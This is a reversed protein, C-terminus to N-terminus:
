KTQLENNDTVTTPVLEQRSIKRIKTEIVKKIDNKIVCHISVILAIVIAGKTSRFLYDITIVCHNFVDLQLFCCKLIDISCQLAIFLVFVFFSMTEQLMQRYYATTKFHKSKRSLNSLASFLFTLMLILMFLRTSYLIWIERHKMYNTWCKDNSTFWYTVAWLMVPIIPLGWGAFYHFMHGSPGLYKSKTSLSQTHTLIVFWMATSCTATELCIVISRCVIQEHMINVKLMKGMASVLAITTEIFAASLLNRWIRSKVGNVFKNVCKCCSVIIAAALVALSVGSLPVYLWNVNHTEKDSETNTNMTTTHTIDFLEYLFPMHSICETYDSFGFGEWKDPMEWGGDSGCTKYVYKDIGAGFIEPCSQRAIDGAPSTGWCIITDWTANCFTGNGNSTLNYVCEKEPTVYKQM